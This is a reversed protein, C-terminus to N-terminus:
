MRILITFCKEIGLIVNLEAGSIPFQFIGYGNSNISKRYIEISLFLTKNLTLRRQNVKFLVGNKEVPIWIFDIFVFPYIWKRKRFYFGSIPV